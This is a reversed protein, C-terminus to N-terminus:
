RVSSFPVRIGSSVPTSSVTYVDGCLEWEFLKHFFTQLFTFVLTKQPLIFFM